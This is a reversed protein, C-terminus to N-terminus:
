SRLAQTGEPSCPPEQETHVLHHASPFIPSLDQPVKVTPGKISKGLLSLPLRSLFSSKCFHTSSSGPGSTSVWLSRIRFPLSQSSPALSATLTQQERTALCTLCPLEWTSVLPRALCSLSRPRLPWLVGVDKPFLENLDQLFAPLIYDSM